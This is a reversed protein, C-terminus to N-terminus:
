FIQRKIEHSKLRLSNAEDEDGESRAISSLNTYITAMNSLVNRSPNTYLEEYIALSEWYHIKAEDYDMMIYAINGLAFLAGVVEFHYRTQSVAERIQICEILIVKSEDYSGQLFLVEAYFSLASAIERVNRTGHVKEYIEVAELLLNKAKSYEKQNKAVIGLNLLTVAITEHQRTGLIREKILLSESLLMAAEPYRGQFRANDGLDNITYAVSIHERTGYVRVKMSISDRLLKEAEEFSRETLAFLGLHHLAQAIQANDGTEGYVQKGIKICKFFCRKSETIDNQQKAICGLMALAEVVQEHENTGNLKEHMEICENLLESAEKNLNLDYSIEGLAFIMKLMHPIERTGNLKEEIALSSSILKRAEEYNKQEKEVLGFTYLCSAVDADEVTGYTEQYFALCECLLIRARDFNRLQYYTEALLKISTVVSKHKRTGRVKAELSISESLFKKATSFEKQGYAIYGLWYLASSVSLHKRTGHIKANLEISRNFFNECAFIYGSYHSIAGMHYLLTAFESKEYSISSLKMVHSILTTGDSLSEPDYAGTDSNIKPCLEILVTIELEHFPIELFEPHSLTRLIISHISRHVSISSDPNMSVLSLNVITSLATEFESRNGSKFLYHQLYKEPINSNSVCGIAGLLLCVDRKETKRLYDVLFTVIAELTIEASCGEAVFTTSRIRNVEDAIRQISDAYDAYEIKTRMSCLIESLLPNGNALEAVRHGVGTALRRNIFKLSYPNLWGVLEEKKLREPNNALPFYEEIHSNRSTILIHGAIKPANELCKKLILPDDANDFVIFWDGYMAFWSFVFNRLKDFRINQYIELKKSIDVVSRQFEFESELNILIRDDYKNPNVATIREVYNKAVTSKGTGMEGYILVSIDAESDAFHADLTSLIDDRGFFIDQYTAPESDTDSAVSQEANRITGDIQEENTEEISSISTQDANTAILKTNTTAVAKNPVLDDIKMFLNRIREELEEMNLRNSFQVLPGGIGLIESWIEKASRSCDIPPVDTFRFENFVDQGAESIFVPVVKLDGTKYREIAIDWEILLKNEYGSEDEIAKLTAESILLVIVSAKVISQLYREKWDTGTRTNM